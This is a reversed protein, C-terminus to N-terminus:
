RDAADIPRRADLRCDANRTRPRDDGSPNLARAGVGCRSTTPPKSVGARRPASRPAGRASAGEGARIIYASNIQSNIERYMMRAVVSSVDSRTCVRM